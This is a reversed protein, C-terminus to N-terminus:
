AMSTVQNKRGMGRFKESTKWVEFGFFGTEGGNTEERGLDL